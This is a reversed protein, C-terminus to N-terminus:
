RDISVYWNNYRTMIDCRYCYGGRNMKCNGLKYCSDSDDGADHQDQRKYTCPAVVDVSLAELAAPLILLMVLGQGESM